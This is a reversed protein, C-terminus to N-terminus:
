SQPMECHPCVKTSRTMAGSCNKCFKVRPMTEAKVLLKVKASTVPLAPQSGSYARPDQGM